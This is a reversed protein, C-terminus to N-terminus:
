LHSVVKLLLAGLILFLIVGAREVQPHPAGYRETLIAVTALMLTISIALSSVERSGSGTSAARVKFSSRHDGAFTLARDMKQPFNMAMSLYQDAREYIQNPAAMERFDSTAAILRFEQFAEAFYDREPALMRAYSATQCVGRYFSVLHPKPTFGIEGALRFQTLLHEAFFERGDATDWCGDRFPVVQRFRQYIEKGSGAKRATKLHRMLAECARDSEQNSVATLYEWLDIQADEPLTGFSAPSVAIGPGSRIAIDDTRFDLPFIRGTLAQRLWSTCFLRATEGRQWESPIVGIPCAPVLVFANQARLKPHALPVEFTGLEDADQALSDLGTAENLLDLRRLFAIRFDEMIADFAVASPFAPALLSLLPLDELWGAVRPHVIKIVVPTSDELLARHCETIRTIDFPQPDVESFRYSAFERKLVAAFEAFSSPPGIDNIEALRVCEDARLLDPRSALYLGFSPFIDGLDELVMRLRNAERTGSLRERPFGAAAVRKEVAKRQRSATKVATLM